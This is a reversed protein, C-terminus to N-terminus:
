ATKTYPTSTDAPEAQDDGPDATLLTGLGALVDGALALLSAATIALATISDVIADVPHAGLLRGLLATATGYALVGLVLQAWLAAGHAAASHAIVAAALLGIASLVLDLLHRGATRM